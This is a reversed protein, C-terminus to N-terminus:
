RKTLEIKGLDTPEGPKVTFRVPSSAPDQYRENLKDPGSYTMSMLNLEGWYFTLVYDGEPVGDGSKYTSIKFKGDKETYTQSQTPHEKDDGLPQKVCTVALNEVPAGDVYVLGSVPFTVKRFGQPEKGCSCLGLPLLLVLTVIYRNLGPM